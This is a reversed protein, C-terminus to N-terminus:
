GVDQISELIEEEFSKSDIEYITNGNETRRKGIQCIDEGNIRINWEREETEVYSIFQIRCDHTSEIKPIIEHTYRGDSFRPPDYSPLEMKQRIKENKIWWDPKEAM